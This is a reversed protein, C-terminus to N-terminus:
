GAPHKGYGLVVRRLLQVALKLGRHRLVIASFVGLCSSLKLIKQGVCRITKFDVLKQSQNVSRQRLIVLGNLVQFRRNAQLRFGSSRSFVQRRAEAMRPIGVQGAFLEALREFEFRSIVIGVM